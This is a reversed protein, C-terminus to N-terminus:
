SLNDNCISQLLMSFPLFLGMGCTTSIHRQFVGAVDGFKYDAGPSPGSQELGILKM